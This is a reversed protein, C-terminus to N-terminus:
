YNVFYKEGKKDVNKVSGWVVFIGNEKILQCIKHIHVKVMCTLMIVIEFNKKIAIERQTCSKEVSFVRAQAPTESSLNKKRNYM